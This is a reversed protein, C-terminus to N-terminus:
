KKAKFGNIRGLSKVVEDLGKSMKAHDAVQQKSAERVDKSIKNFAKLQKEIIRRQSVDRADTKKLIDTQNEKVWKLVYWLMFCCFGAMGAGFGYQSLIQKLAILM